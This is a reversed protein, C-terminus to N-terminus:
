AVTETAEEAVDSVLPRVYIVESRKGVAGVGGSSRAVVTGIDCIWGPLHDAVKPGESLVLHGRATAVLKVFDGGGGTYRRQGSYPPDAYVHDSDTTDALALAADDYVLASTGAVTNAAVHLRKVCDGWPFTKGWKEASVLKTGVTRSWGDRYVNPSNGFAYNTLWLFRAVREVPDDVPEAIIAYYRETTAPTDGLREAARILPDPDAHLMRWFGAVQPHADALIAPGGYGRGRLDLYLAGMGTFPEVYRTIDAVPFYPRLRPLLRRKGGQYGIVPLARPDALLRAEQTGGASLSPTPSAAKPPVQTM